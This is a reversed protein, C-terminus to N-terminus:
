GRWGGRQRRGRTTAERKREETAAASGGGAGGAEDGGDEEGQCVFSGRGRYCAHIRGGVQTPLDRRRRKRARTGVPGSAARRPRGPPEAAWSRAVCGRPFGARAGTVGGRYPGSAACLGRTLLPLEGTRVSREERRAAAAGAM